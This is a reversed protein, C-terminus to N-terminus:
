NTVQLYNFAINNSSNVFLIKHNPIANIEGEWLLISNKTLLQIFLNDAQELALETVYVGEGGDFTHIIFAGKPTMFMKITETFGSVQVVVNFRDNESITNARALEYTLSIFSLAIVISAALAFTKNNMRFVAQM